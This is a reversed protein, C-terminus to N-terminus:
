QIGLAKFIMFMPALGLMVAASMAWLFLIIEGIEKLTDWIMNLPKEAEEEAKRQLEEFKVVDQFEIEGNNFKEIVTNLTEKYKDKNM